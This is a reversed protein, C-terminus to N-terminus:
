RGHGLDRAAAAGDNRRGLGDLDDRLYIGDVVIWKQGRTLWGARRRGLLLLLVVCDALRAGETEQWVQVDVETEWGSLTSGGM